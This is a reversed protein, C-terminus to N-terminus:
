KVGTIIVVLDDKTFNRVTTFAKKDFQLIIFKNTPVIKQIEFSPGIIDKCLDPYLPSGGNCGYNKELKCKSSCGDGNRINGDDCEYSGFDLGDGCIETCVGGGPVRENSSWPFDFGNIDTCQVCIGESDYAYNDV